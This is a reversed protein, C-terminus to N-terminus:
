SRISHHGTGGGRVHLRHRDPPINECTLMTYAFAVNTPRSPDAPSHSGPARVTKRSSRATQM